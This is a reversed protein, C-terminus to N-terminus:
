KIGIYKHTQISLRLYQSHKKVIEVAHRLNEKNKEPQRAYHVPQLFLNSCQEYWESLQPCFTNWLKEISPTFRDYLFKYEDAQICLLLNKPSVTIWIKERIGPSVKLPVTGNTEIHISYGKEALNEIVSAINKQLLPEGGTLLVNKCPFLRLKVLLEEWSIPDSKGEREDCFSCDLNCGQFRIFVMPKGTHLGEGQISYYIVSIEWLM